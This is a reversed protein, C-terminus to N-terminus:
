PRGRIAGDEKLVRMVREVVLAPGRVKYRIGEDLHEEELVGLEGRIRGILAARAWPVMLEAVVAAEAFHTAIREHLEAVRAPAHAATFWAEPREQRLAEEQGEGLRDCKNFVLVRPLEGAYIEGLVILTLAEQEM